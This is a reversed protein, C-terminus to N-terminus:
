MVLLQGAVASQVQFAELVARREQQLTVLDAHCLTHIEVLAAQQVSTFRLSEQVDAWRLEAGPLHM